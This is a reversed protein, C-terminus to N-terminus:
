RANNQYRFDITKQRVDKLLLVNCKSYVSATEMLYIQSITWRYLLWCHLCLEWYYLSIWTHKCYCRRLLNLKYYKILRKPALLYAFFHFIQWWLYHFEVPPVETNNKMRNKWVYRSRNNVNHWWLWTDLSCFNHGFFHSNKNGRMHVYFFTSNRYM